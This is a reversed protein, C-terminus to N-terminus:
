QVDTVPEGKPYFKRNVSSLRVEGLKTIIMRDNNYYEVDLKILNDIEEYIGDLRGGFTSFIYITGGTALMALINDLVRIPYASYSLAGYIDLVYNLRYKLKNSLPLEVNHFIVPHVSPYRTYTMGIVTADPYIKELERCAFGMGCGSDLIIGNDDVTISLPDFLKKYDTFSRRMHFNGDDIEKNSQKLCQQYYNNSM